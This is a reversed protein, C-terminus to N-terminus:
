RRFRGRWYRWIRRTVMAIRKWFSASDWRSRPCTCKLGPFPDTSKKACQITKIWRKNLESGLRSLESPLADTKTMVLQSATLHEIGFKPRVLAQIYAYPNFHNPEVLPSDSSVMAHLHHLLCALHDVKAKFSQTSMVLLGFCPNNHDIWVSSLHSRSRTLIPWQINHLVKVSCSIHSPSRYRYKPM